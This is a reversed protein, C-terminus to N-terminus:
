DRERAQKKWWAQWAAIARRRESANGGAKPGLDKGAIAKLAAQAALRVMSDDDSLLRILDPVLPRSDKQGVALAAARRIESDSDKLYERLTAAKLRTLRDALAERALRRTEVDLRPIVNALAETYAGGKTDRLKKILGSRAEGKSRLLDSTLREAAQETPSGPKKDTPKPPAKISEGVDKKARTKGGIGVTDAGKGPPKTGTLASGGVGGARLIKEGFVKTGRLSGTLDRTLNAKKLFLLAFCTDAGCGGYEGMWLGGPQQNALLVEAGWNYWDKKDITAVDLIVCVRELSWLFYYAKGAAPPIGNPRRGTGDWGLPKGVAASLAKVGAKLTADKSVDATAAKNGKAKKADVKAGLGCAVGMVGACTMTARPDMAGGMGANYGWEGRVTQSARFRQEVRLLAAQTPVGYRRGVWLALTAFQTNSNDDGLQPQNAAAVAAVKIQNQIEKPLDTTARKGKAPLKSLDRTGRLLRGSMEAAVRRAELEAVGPCEYAWGGARTQGALLRVLMSEILPTDEAKDLRDLFLVALSLSYTHTLRLGATRVHKAAAQVSKDNKPVGCELLTLGALATMGTQQFYPWTGEKNQLNKLAAVGRDVSAGIAKKDVARAPSTLLVLAGIALFVYRM